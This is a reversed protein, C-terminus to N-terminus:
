EPKDKHLRKSLEVQAERQHCKELEKAKQEQEIKEKQKQKEIQPYVYAVYWIMVVSMILITALSYFNNIRMSPTRGGRIDKIEIPKLEENFEKEEM